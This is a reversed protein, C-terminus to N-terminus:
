EGSDQQVSFPVPRLPRVKARKEAVIAHFEPALQQHLDRAYALAQDRDRRAQVLDARLAAITDNRAQLEAHLETSSRCGEARGLMATVLVPVMEVIGDLTERNNRYATGRSYKAAEAISRLNVPRGAAALASAALAARWCVPVSRMALAVDVDDECGNLRALRMMAQALEQGDTANM